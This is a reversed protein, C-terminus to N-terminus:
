SFTRPSHHFRQEVSVNEDVVEIGDGLSASFKLAVRLFGDTDDRPHLHHNASGAIDFNRRAAKQATEIDNLDISLNCLTGHAKAAVMVDFQGVCNDPCRRLYM